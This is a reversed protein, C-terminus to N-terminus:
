KERQIANRLKEYAEKPFPHRWAQEYGESGMDTRTSELFSLLQRAFTIWKARSKFVSVGEGRHQGSRMERFELIEVEIDRGHRRLNWHLEGPEQSWCCDAARMDQLNQVADLDGLVDTPSYAGTVMLENSGDTLHAYAWGSEPNKLSIRLM